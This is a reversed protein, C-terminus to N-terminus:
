RNGMGIQMKMFQHHPLLQEEYTLPSNYVDFMSKPVFSSATSTDDSAYSYSLKEKQFAPFSSVLTPSRWGEENTKQPKYANTMSFHNEDFSSPNKEASLSDKESSSKRFSPMSDSSKGAESYFNVGRSEVNTRLNKGTPSTDSRLHKNDVHQYHISADDYGSKEERRKSLSERLFSNGSGISYGSSSDNQKRHGQPNIPMVLKKNRERLALYRQILDKRGSPTMSLLTLSPDNMFDRSSHDSYLKRLEKEPTPTIPISYHKSEIADLQVNGQLFKSRSRSAQRCKEFITKNELLSDETVNPSMESNRSVQDMSDDIQIKDKSRRSFYKQSLIDRSTVDNGAFTYNTTNDQTRSINGTDISKQDSFRTTHFYGGTSRDSYEVCVRPEFNENLADCPHPSFMEECSLPSVMTGHMNKIPAKGIEHQTTQSEIGECQSGLPSVIENEVIGVIDDIFPSSLQNKTPSPDRGKKLREVAQYQSSTRKLTRPLSRSRRREDVSDNNYAEKLKPDNSKERANVPSSRVNRIRRKDNISKSRRQSSKREPRGSSDLGQYVLEVDQNSILVTPKRTHATKYMTKRPSEMKVSCGFFINEMKTGSPEKPVKPRGNKLTVGDPEAALLVEYGSGSSTQYIKERNKRMPPDSSTDHYSRAIRRTPLPVKSKEEHRTSVVDERKRSIHDEVRSRITDKTTVKDGDIIHIVHHFDGSTEDDPWEDSKELPDDNESIPVPPDRQEPFESNRTLGSVITQIDYEETVERRDDNTPKKKRRIRYSKTKWKLKQQIELARTTFGSTCSTGSVTGSIDKSDILSNSINNLPRRNKAKPPKSNSAYTGGLEPGFSNQLM